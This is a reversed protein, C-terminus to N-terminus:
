GGLKTRDWTGLVVVVVVAVEEVQECEGGVQGDSGGKDHEM